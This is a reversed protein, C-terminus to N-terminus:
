PVSRARDSMLRDTFLPSQSDMMPGEPLPLVVIILMMPHMSVGDSPLTTRSPTSMLQSFAALRVRIRRFM